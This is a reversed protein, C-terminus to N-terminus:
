MKREHAARRHAGQGVAWEPRPDKRQARHKEKRIVHWCGCFPCPRDYARFRGGTEAMLREAGRWAERKSDFRPIKGSECRERNKRMRYRYEEHLKRCTESCHRKRAGNTEGAQDWCFVTRCWECPM